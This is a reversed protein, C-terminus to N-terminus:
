KFDERDSRNYRVQSVHVFNVVMDSVKTQVAQLSLNEQAEKDKFCEPHYAVGQPDRMANHLMWCGEENGEGQVNITLTPKCIIVTLFHKM